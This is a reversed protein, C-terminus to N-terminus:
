AKEQGYREILAKFGGRTRLIRGLGSDDLRRVLWRVDEDATQLRKLEDAPVEVIKNRRNKKEAKAAKREKAAVATEDPETAERELTKLNARLFRVEQTLLQNELQLAALDDHDPRRTAKM